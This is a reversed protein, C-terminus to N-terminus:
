NLFLGLRFFWFNEKEGAKSIISRYYGIGYEIKKLKKTYRGANAQFRNEYLFANRKEKARLDMLQEYVGLFYWEGPDLSKGQLPLEYAFKTRLRLMNGDKFFREELKVQESLRIRGKLLQSFTIQQYLRNESKYADTFVEQGGYLYGFGYSLFPSHNKAVTFSIRMKDRESVVQDPVREREGRPSWFVKMYLKGNAKWGNKIQQTYSAEVENGVYDNGQAIIEGISILFLGLSIYLAKRCM